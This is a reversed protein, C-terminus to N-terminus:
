GPAGVTSEKEDHSMGDLASPGMAVEHAGDTVGVECLRVATHESHCSGHTQRGQARARIGAKSDHRGEGQARGGVIVESWPVPSDVGPM